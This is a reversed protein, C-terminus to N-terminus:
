TEAASQTAGPSLPLTTPLPWSRDSVSSQRSVHPHSPFSTSGSRPTESYSLSAPGTFSPLVPPPALPLRMATYSKPSPSTPVLPAPGQTKSRFHTRQSSRPCRLLEKKTGGTHTHSVWRTCSLLLSESPQTAEEPSPTSQSLDAVMFTLTM